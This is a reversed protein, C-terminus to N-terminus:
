RRNNKLQGCAAKIDRGFSKRLTVAKNLRMLEAKFAEIIESTPSQWDCGITPNAAILNIHCNLERLLYALQRAQELSDNIGAFLAYEFTVRRGSAKVYADCAPILKDLSYKRNLPVLRNRLANDAAHLSVALGLQLKEKSLKEIGPVYGATSITINRAGLGFGWPANLRESALLVDLYNVLPEGIGMFVINSIAADGGLREAFFLVQDCIEAIGLNREYGYKGSACFPCGIACGVQSSVCVTYQGKFSPIAAAEISRGDWLELLAKLTGDRSEQVELEAVSSFTVAASLKERLLKPLDTMDDFSGARKQYVWALLPKARWASENFSRMLGEADKLSLDTLFTPRNPM